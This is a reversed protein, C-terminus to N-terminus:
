LQPKIVSFEPLEYIPIFSIALFSRIFLVFAEAICHVHHRVKHVICLATHLVRVAIHDSLLHVARFFSYKCCCFYGRFQWLLSYLLKHVTFFSSEISFFKINQNLTFFFFIYWRSTTIKNTIAGVYVFAAIVLAFIAFEVFLFFLFVQVFKRWISISFSFFRFFLFASVSATWFLLGKNFWQLHHEAPGDSLFFIM